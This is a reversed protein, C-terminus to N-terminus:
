RGATGGEWGYRAWLKPFRASLGAVQEDGLVKPATGSDLEDGLGAERHDLVEEAVYSWEEADELQDDLDEVDALRDPDALVADYTARGQSVLWTCLDLFGDDSAGAPILVAAASLDSNAARAAFTEAYRHFDRLADTHLPELLERLADVLSADHTRKHEAAADVLSWFEEAKM